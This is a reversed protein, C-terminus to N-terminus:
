KKRAGWIGCLWSFKKFKDSDRVEENVAKTLEEFGGLEDDPEPYDHGIILGGSKLKPTWSLIDLKVNDYDHEADIFVIDLSEDDFEKAAESSYKELISVSDLLGRDKLNKEFEKRTSAGNLLAKHESSGLFPDVCYLDFQDKPIQYKFACTARGKWCGIEVAKGECLSFISWLLPIQYNVLYGEINSIELILRNTFRVDVVKLLNYYKEFVGLDHM